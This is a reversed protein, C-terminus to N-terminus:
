NRPIVLVGEHIRNSHFQLRVMRITSSEDVFWLQSWGAYQGHTTVSILTGYEAPIGKLNELVVKELEREAVPEQDIRQCSCVIFSLLFILLTILKM